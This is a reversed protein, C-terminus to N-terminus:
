GVQKKCGLESRGDGGVNFSAPKPLASINNTDSKSDHITFTTIKVHKINIFKRTCKLPRYKHYNEKLSYSTKLHGLRSLSDHVSQHIESTFDTIPAQDSLVQLSFINTRFLSVLKCIQSSLSLNLLFSLDTLPLGDESSQYQGNATM